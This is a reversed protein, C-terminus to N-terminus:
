DALMRKVTPRLTNVWSGEMLSHIEFKFQTRLNVVCFSFTKGMAAWQREVWSSPFDNAKGIVITQGDWKQQKM